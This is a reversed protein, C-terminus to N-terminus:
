DRFTFFSQEGAAPVTGGRDTEDNSQVGPDPQSLAPQGIFHKGDEFVGGDDNDVSRYIAKLNFGTAVLEKYLLLPPGGLSRFECTVHRIDGNEALEVEAQRALPEEEEEWVHCGVDCPIGWNAMCWAEREDKEKPLAYLPVDKEKLLVYLPMPIFAHCTMCDNYADIFREMRSEDKHALILKNFFAELSIAKREKAAGIGCDTEDASEASPDPPPPMIQSSVHKGDEFVGGVNNDPLFYSARLKFGWAALEQYLVLPPSGWSAFSCAVHSIKGDDTTEASALFGETVKGEADCECGIDCPMGWNAICWTRRADCGEKVLYRPMPLMFFCAARLDYGVLFRQMLEECHHSIILKNFVRM